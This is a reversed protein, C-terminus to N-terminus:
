LSSNNPTKKGRKRGEYVGRLKALEIGEHQNKLIRTIEIEAVTGMISFM